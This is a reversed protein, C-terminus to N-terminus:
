FWFLEALFNAWSWLLNQSLDQRVQHNSESFIAVVQSVILWLASELGLDASDKDMAPGSDVCQSECSETIRDYSRGQKSPLLLILLSHLIQTPVLKQKFSGTTTVAEKKAM